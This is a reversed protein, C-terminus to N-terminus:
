AARKVNLLTAAQEPTRGMLAWLALDADAQSVDLAIKRLKRLRGPTWQRLIM